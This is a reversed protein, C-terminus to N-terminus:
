PHTKNQISGNVGEIKFFYHFQESEKFFFFKPVSEGLNRKIEERDTLYKPSNGRLGQAAVADVYPYHLTYSSPNVGVCMFISVWFFLLKNFALKIHM